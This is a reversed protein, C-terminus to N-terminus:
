KIENIKDESFLPLGVLPIKRLPAKIGFSSVLWRAEQEKIFKFKKRDCVACKSLLM